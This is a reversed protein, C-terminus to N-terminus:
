SLANGIGAVCLPHDFQLCGESVIALRSYDGSRAPLDYGPERYWLWRVAGAEHGIITQNGYFSRNQTGEPAPTGPTFDTNNITFTDASDELWRNVRFSVTQGSALQFVNVFDSGRADDASRTRENLLIGGSSILFRAVRGMVRYGCQFVWPANDISGGAAALPSWLNNYLMDLTINAHNADYFVSYMSAPVNVGNVMTLSTQSGHMRELGTWAAHSILGEMKRPEDATLQGDVSPGGLGYMGTNDLSNFHMTTLQGVRKDWPMEAGALRAARDSGSMELAHHQVEAICKTKVEYNPDRYSYDAGEHKTNAHPSSISRVTDSATYPEDLTWETVIHDTKEHPLRALLPTDFASRVVVYDLLREPRVTENGTFYQTM